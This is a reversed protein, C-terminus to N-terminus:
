LTQAVQGRLALAFDRLSAVSEAYWDPGWTRVTEADPAYGFGAIAVRMGAARAATVDIQADGVYLTDRPAIGVTECAHLLPLPDPKKRSTSDGGLVCVPQPELALSAIIPKVLAEPKNSVVGWIVGQESLEPLLREIGEFVRTYTAPAEAYHHFLRRTLQEITDEDPEPSKFSSLIVQRAGLSVLARVHGTDLPPRGAEALALNTARAIDAATDALTGDLDFLALNLSM